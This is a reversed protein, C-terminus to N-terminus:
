EEPLNLDKFNFVDGMTFSHPRFADAVIDQLHRFEEEDQTKRYLLATNRADTLGDHARGAFDLGALSVAKELKMAKTIHMMDGFEQQFDKWHNLMYKTEPTDEIHKLDTERLIQWIDSDSWSWITYDEGCWTVFRGLVPAFPDANQVMETSIGTLKEYKPSIATSYQPHVYECFSDTEENNEDLRVAGIEITEMTCVKRLDPHSRDIPNMELDMFIKNM